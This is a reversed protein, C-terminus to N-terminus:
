GNHFPTKPSIREHQDTLPGHWPRGGVDSISVKSAIYRGIHAQSSRSGSYKRALPIEDVLMRSMGIVDHAPGDIFWEARNMLPVLIEKPLPQIRGLAVRTLRSAITNPTEGPFPHEPLHRIGCAALRQREEWFAFPPRMYRAVSSSTLTDDLDENLKDSILFEKYAEMAEPGVEELSRYGADCLWRMWYRIGLSVENITQPNLPKQMAPFRYLCYIVVKAAERLEDYQSQLFSTGDSMGFQWVAVAYQCGPRAPDAFYWETDTWRSWESM